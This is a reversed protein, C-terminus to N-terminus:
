LAVSKKTVGPIRYLSGIFRYTQDLILDQLKGGLVDINISNPNQSPAIDNGATHREDLQKPLFKGDAIHAHAANPQEFGTAMQDRYSFQRGEEFSELM